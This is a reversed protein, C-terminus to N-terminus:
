ACQSLHMVINRPSYCKCSVCWKVWRLTHGLMEALANMCERHQKRIFRPTLRRHRDDYILSVAFESSSTNLNAIACHNVEQYDRVM